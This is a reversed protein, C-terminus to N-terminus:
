LLATLWRSVAQEAFMWLLIAVLGIAFPALVVGALAWSLWPGFEYPDPNPRPRYADFSAYSVNAERAERSSSLPWDSM